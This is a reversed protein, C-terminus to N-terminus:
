LEVGQESMIAASPDYMWSDTSIYDDWETTPIGDSELGDVEERINCHRDFEGKFACKGVQWCKPRWMLSDSLAQYEGAYEPDNMEGYEAIQEVIQSFVSRWHFQAQTCLRNGAHEALNRCDTTYMIRTATAHPLLGRADEAPMGNAILYEYTDQVKAVCEDWRARNQGLQDSTNEPNTGHLSPPLSVGQSLNDLVAFRLSEQAFVATRQRVHQHTFSRDVGEILFQFKINELPAKLHTKSMDSLAQDMAEQSVDDLHRIVRGAYMENFSALASLPRHTMWVLSVKPLVGRDTTWTEHPEADFMAVDAYKMIEQTM